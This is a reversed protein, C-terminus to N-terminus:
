QFVEKFTEFLVAPQRTDYVAFCVHEFYPVKTLATMFAVAVQGPDNGFAGCGWAGLIINKHGHMEAVQLIKIARNQITSYIVEELDDEQQQTKPKKLATINPAPATIISLEFPKELFMLHEDRIFPVKNSYIIGDTYLTDEALINANYFLPKSKTCAYLGSCRCLDEEQASAGALFGGGVNRASAFNLGVLDEKGLKSLRIAAQATTENTVEIVPVIANGKRVPIPDPYFITNDIADQLSQSFDVDEGNLNTYHGQKLIEIQQKALSANKSRANMAEVAAKGIPKIKIM